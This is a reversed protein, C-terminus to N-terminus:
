IDNTADKLKTGDGNWELTFSYDLNELSNSCAVVFSNYNM